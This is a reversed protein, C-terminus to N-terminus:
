IYIWIITWGSLFLFVVFRNSEGTLGWCARCEIGSTVRSVGECITSPLVHFCVYFYVLICLIFRFLDSEKSIIKCGLSMFHMKLSKMQWPNHLASRPFTLPVKWRPEALSRTHLIWPRNSATFHHHNFVSHNIPDKGMEVLAANWPRISTLIERQHMASKTSRVGPLAM